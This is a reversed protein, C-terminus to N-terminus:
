HDTESDDSMVNGSNVILDFSTGSIDYTFLASILGCKEQIPCLLFVCGTRSM